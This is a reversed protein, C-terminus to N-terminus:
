TRPHHSLRALRTLTAQRTQREVTGRLRGTAPQDTLTTFHESAYLRFRERRTM